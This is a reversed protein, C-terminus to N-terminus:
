ASRKLNIPQGMLQHWREHCVRCVSVTPWLDAETGFQARPALHHNELIAAKGCVPCRDSETQPTLWILAVIEADTFLEKAVWLGRKGNPMTTPVPKQCRHCWASISYGTASGAKVFEVEAVEGIAVAAAECKCKPLEIM